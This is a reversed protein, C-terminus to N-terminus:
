TVVEVDPFELFGEVIELQYKNLFIYVFFNNMPGNKRYQYSILLNTPWRSSLGKASM